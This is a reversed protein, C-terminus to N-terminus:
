SYFEELYKTLKKIRQNISFLIRSLKSKGKM